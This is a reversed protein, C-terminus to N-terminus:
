SYGPWNKQIDAIRARQAKIVQEELPLPAQPNQRSLVELISKLTRDISFLRFQAIILVVSLVLSVLGFFLGFVGSVVDM